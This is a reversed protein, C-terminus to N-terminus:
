SAKENTLGSTEDNVTHKKIFKAFLKATDPNLKIDEIVTTEGVSKSDNTMVKTILNEIAKILLKLVFVILTKKM